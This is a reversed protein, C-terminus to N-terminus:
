AGDILGWKKEMQSITGESKLEEVANKVERALKKSDKRVCIGNGESQMENPLPLSLVKIEPYKELFIPLLAPDLASARSKGYKLDLIVDQVSDFYKLPINPCTKVVDEQYSGAEICIPRTDNGVLDSLSRVNE